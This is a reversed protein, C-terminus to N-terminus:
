FNPTTPLFDKRLNLGMIEGRAPSTGTPGRDCGSPSSSIVDAVPPAQRPRVMGSLQFNPQLPHPSQASSGYLENEQVNYFVGPIVAYREGGELFGIFIGIEAPM